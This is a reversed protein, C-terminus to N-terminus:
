SIRPGLLAALCLGRITWGLTRWLNTRVLRQITRADYERTLKHHLPVSFLWTSVWILALVVISTCFLASREGLYLLWAASVVELLMLPGVVWTILSMHREHYAIFNEHVVDKFLPYHVVQITWILGVLAWTVAFHIILLTTM